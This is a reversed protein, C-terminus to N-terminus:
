YRGIFKCKFRMRGPIDGFKVESAPKDFPPKEVVAAFHEQKLDQFEKKSLQKKTVNKEKFMNQVDFGKFDPNVIKTKKSLKRHQTNSSALKASKM